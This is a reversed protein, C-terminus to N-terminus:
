NGAWHTFGMQKNIFKIADVIVPPIAEDKAKMFQVAELLQNRYELLLARMGDRHDSDKEPDRLKQESVEIVRDNFRKTLESLMVNESLLELLDDDRFIVDDNDRERPRHEQKKGAPKPKFQKKLGIIEQYADIPVNRILSEMKQLIAENEAKNFADPSGKGINEQSLKWAELHNESVIDKDMPTKWTGVGIWQLEVGSNHASKTFETTFQSFLNTIKHRPTFTPPPKAAKPNAPDDTPQTLQRVQEAIVEERQKLKELEPLGSSALYETLNRESMFGSLRGRILGVM